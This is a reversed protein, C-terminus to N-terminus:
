PCLWKIIRKSSHCSTSTIGSIFHEKLLRSLFNTFGHFDFKSPMSDLTKPTCFHCAGNQFPKQFDLFINKLILYRFTLVPYVNQSKNLYPNRSRSSNHRSLLTLSKRLKVWFCWRLFFFFILFNSDIECLICCILYLSTPFQKWTLIKKQCLISSFDANATELISLADRKEM